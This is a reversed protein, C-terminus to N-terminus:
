CRFSFDRLKEDEVRKYPSGSSPNYLYFLFFLQNVSPSRKGVKIGFNVEVPLIVQEAGKSEVSSGGGTVIDLLSELFASIGM